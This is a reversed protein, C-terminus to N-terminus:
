GDWGRRDQRRSKQCGDRGHNSSYPDVWHDHQSYVSSSDSPAAPAIMARASESARWNIVLSFEHWYPCKVTRDQTQYPVRRCPAVFITTSLELGIQDPVKRLPRLLLVSTCPIELRCHPNPHRIRRARRCENRATPKAARRINARVAMRESAMPIPAFEAIETHHVSQQQARQRTGIGITESHQPQAGGADVNGLVPWRGTVENINLALVMGDFLHRNRVAPRSRQQAEVLRFPRPAAFKMRTTGNTPLSVAKHGGEAAPPRCARPGGRRHDEAMFEPLTQEIGVRVDGAPADGQVTEAGAPCAGVLIM